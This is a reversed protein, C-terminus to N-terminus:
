KAGNGSSNEKEKKCKVEELAEIVDKYIGKEIQFLIKSVERAQEYVYRVKEHCQQNSDFVRKMRTVDKYSSSVKVIEDM